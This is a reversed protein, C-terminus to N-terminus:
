AAACEECRGFLFIEHGELSFGKPLISKFEKPCGQLDFVKNCASCRFHHHHGKGKLEYRPAEGPLEVQQLFGDDLLRKITRYVTAIGLGPAHERAADFIEPPGMPRGTQEFVKHIARRQVTNREM